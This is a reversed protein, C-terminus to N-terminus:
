RLRISLVKSGPSCCRQSASMLGVMETVTIDATLKVFQGAYTSDNTVSQAFTVWDANNNILYPDETTGSGSLGQAWAMPTLAILLLILYLRTIKM